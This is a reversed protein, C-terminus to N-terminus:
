NCPGKLVQTEVWVEFSDGDELLAPEMSYLLDEEDLQKLYKRQEAELEAREVEGLEGPKQYSKLRDLVYKSALKNALDPTRCVDVTVNVVPTTSPADEFLGDDDNNTSDADAATTSTSTNKILIIYVVPRIRRAAKMARRSPKCGQGRPRLVRDVYVCVNGTESSGEYTAMGTIRDKKWHFDDLPYVRIDGRELLIEDGAARNAADVDIYGTHCLLPELDEIDDEDDETWSLRKVVFEYYTADEEVGQCPSDDVFSLLSEPKHQLIELMDQTITKGGTTPRPIEEEPELDVELLDMTDFQIQDDADADAITTFCRAASGLERQVEKEQALRQREKLRQYEQRRDRKVESNRSKENAKTNVEQSVTKKFNMNGGCPAPSLRPLAAFGFRVPSSAVKGPREHSSSVGPSSYSSSFGQSTTSGSFGATQALAREEAKKKRHKLSSRRKAEKREPTTMRTKRSEPSAIGSPTSSLSRPTGAYRFSPSAPAVIDRIRQSISENSRVKKSATSETHKESSIMATQLKRKQCRELSTRLMDVADQVPVPSAREHKKSPGDAACKGVIKASHQRPSPSSNLLSTLPGFSRRQITSAPSTARATAPYIAPRTAQATAPATTSTCALTSVSTTASTTASTSVSTTASTTVLITAPANALTTARATALAKRHEGAKVMGFEPTETMPLSQDSYIPGAISMQGMAVTSDEDGKIPSHPEVLSNAVSATRWANAAGGYHVQSAEQVALLDESYLDQLLINVKKSASSEPFNEHVINQASHVRRKDIAIQPMPVPKATDGQDKYVREGQMLLTYLAGDDAKSLDAGNGHISLGNDHNYQNSFAKHPGSHDLKSASPAKACTSIIQSGTNGESTSDVPHLPRSKVDSDDQEEAETKEEEGVEGEVLLDEEEKAEEVEGEHEGGDDDRDDSSLEISDNQSRGAKKVSKTLSRPTTVLGTRTSERSLGWNISMTSPEVQPGKKSAGGFASAPSSLRGSHKTPRTQARGGLLAITM